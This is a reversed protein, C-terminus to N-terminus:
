CEHSEHPLCNPYGQYWTEFDHALFISYLMCGLVLPSGLMIFEKQTYDSMENILHNCHNSSKSLFGSSAAVMLVSKLSWSVGKSSSVLSTAIPFMLTVAAVRHILNALISTMIFIVLLQLTDPHKEDDANLKLSQLFNVAADSAHTKIIAETICFGAGIVMLANGEINHLAQKQSIVRAFLLVFVAIMTLVSLPLMEIVDLTVIFVLCLAALLAHWPKRRVVVSTSDGSLQTVTSFDRYSWSLHHFQSFREMFQDSAELLLADGSRLVINAFDAFNEYESLRDNNDRSNGRSRSRSRDDKSQDKRRIGIIAAKYYSRFQIDGVCMEDLRSGDAIVAIVLKRKHFSANLKSAQNSGMVELRPDRLVTTLDKASGSLVLMDGQKLIVQRLAHPDGTKLGLKSPRDAFSDDTNANANTTAGGSDDVGGGDDGDGSVDFRSKTEGFTGRGIQRRNIDTSFSREVMFGDSKETLEEHIIEQLVMSAEFLHGLRSSEVSKGHLAPQIKVCATFADVRSIVERSSQQMMIDLDDDGIANNGTRATHRRKSLIIPAFIILYIGGFICLPLGDLAIFFFESMLNGGSCIPLPKGPLHSLLHHGGGHGGASGAGQGAGAGASASAGASATVNSLLSEAANAADALALVLLNTSTGIKTLLGGLIAAFSLPMLLVRSEIGVRTSWKMLVPGLWVVVAANHMFGSLFMTVFIMKFLAWRISVIENGLFWQEFYDLLTSEHFALSVIGLSIVTFLINNGYGKIAEDVGIIGPVIMLIMGFVFGIGSEHFLDYILIVILILVVWWAYLGQRTIIGDNYTIIGGNYTSNANAIHIANAECLNVWKTDPHLFAFVFFLISIGLILGFPIRKDRVVALSKQLQQRDERASQTSKSLARFTMTSNRHPSESPLLEAELNM